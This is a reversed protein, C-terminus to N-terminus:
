KKTQFFRSMVIRPTSSSSSVSSPSLPSSQVVLDAPVPIPLLEKPLEKVRKTKKARSTEKFEEETSSSGRDLVPVLHTSPAAGSRLRETVMADVQRNGQWYLQETQTVPNKQHSRVHHFSVIRPALARIRALCKQLLEVHKVPSGQSTKWGNSEWRTFWKTLCDICFRSDTVIVAKQYSPGKGLFLKCLAHYIALLEAHQNSPQELVLGTENRSDGPGFYVGWAARCHPEGNYWAGGDTFVMECAPPQTSPSVKTYDVKYPQPSTAM